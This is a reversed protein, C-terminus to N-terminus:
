PDTSLNCGYGFGGDAAVEIGLTCLFFGPLIWVDQIARGELVFAFHIAGQGTHRAGDEAHVVADMTWDGALPIYFTVDATTHAPVSAPQVANPLAGAPTRVRIEVPRARMNRVEGQLRFTGPPVPEEVLACAAALVSLALSLTVSRLM